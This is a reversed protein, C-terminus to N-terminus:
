IEPEAVLVNLVSAMTCYVDFRGRYTISEIPVPPLCRLGKTTRMWVRAIGMPPPARDCQQEFREPHRSAYGIVEDAYTELMPLGATIYAREWEDGAYASSQDPFVAVTLTGGEVHMDMAVAWVSASRTADALRADVPGDRVLVDRFSAEPEADVLEAIRPARERGLSSACAACIAVAIWSLAHRVIRTMPRTITPTMTGAHVPVRHM